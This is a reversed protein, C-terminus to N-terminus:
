KSINNIYNYTIKHIYSQITDLSTDYSYLIISIKDTKTNTKSKENESSEASMESYAYIQSEKSILFKSKQSIIYPNYNYSEGLKNPNNNDTDDDDDDYKININSSIDFFEKIEYISPNNYMNLLISSWIANFTDSCVISVTPKKAYINLATCKKGELTIKNKKYIASKIIDKINNLKFNTFLVHIDSKHVIQVIYSMLTLVLTTLLTDIIPNNTKLKSFISVKVTDNFTRYIIDIFDTM